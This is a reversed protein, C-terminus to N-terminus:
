DTQRQIWTFKKVLYSYIGELMVSINHECPCFCTKDPWWSRPRQGVFDLWNTKSDLRINTGFKFFNWRPTVSINHGCFHSPCVVQFCYFTQIHLSMHCILPSVQLILSLVIGWHITLHTHFHHSDYATAKVTVLDWGVQVGITVRRYMVLKFNVDEKINLQGDYSLTQFWIVNERCSFRFNVSHRCSILWSFSANLAGACCSWCKFIWMCTCTSGHVTCMHLYVSTWVKACICDRYFVWEWGLQTLGGDIRYPSPLLCPSQQFPPLLCWFFSSCQSCFRGSTFSPCSCSPLSSPLFSALFSVFFLFHTSPHWSFTFPYSTLTYFCLSLLHHSPLPYSSVLSLLILSSLSSLPQPSSLPKM